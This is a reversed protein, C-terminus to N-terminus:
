RWWVDVDGPGTKGGGKGGVRRLGVTLAIFPMKEKEILWDMDEKTLCYCRCRRKLM